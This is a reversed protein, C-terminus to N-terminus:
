LALHARTPANAHAHSHTSTHWHWTTTIRIAITFQLALPSHATHATFSHTLPHIKTSLCLSHTHDGSRHDSCSSQWAREEGPHHVAAGGPAHTHTAPASPACPSTLSHTLSHTLINRHSHAFRCLPHQLLKHAHTTRRPHPLDHCVSFSLATYFSRFPTFTCVPGQGDAMAASGREKKGEECDSLPM